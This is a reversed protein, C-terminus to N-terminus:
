SAMGCTWWGDGLDVPDRCIMGWMDFGEPSRYPSYWFGGADDPIGSWQPLFVVEEWCSTLGGATFPAYEKPLEVYYDYCDGYEHVWSVIQEMMAQDRPYKIPRAATDGWSFDWFFASWAFIVGLFIPPPLVFVWWGWQHPLDEDPPGPKELHAM